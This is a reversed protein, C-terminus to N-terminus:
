VEDFLYYDWNDVDFILSKGSLRIANSTKVNLNFSANHTNRLCDYKKRLESYMEDAKLAAREELVYLERLAKLHENYAKKVRNIPEDLAKINDNIVKDAQRKDRLYDEYLAMRNGDM